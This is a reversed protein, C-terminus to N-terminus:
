YSCLVILGFLSVRRPDLLAFGISCSTSPGGQERKEKRSSLNRKIECYTSVASTYIFTKKPIDGVTQHPGFHHNAIENSSQKQPSQFFSVKGMEEATTQASFSLLWIM